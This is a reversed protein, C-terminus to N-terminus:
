NQRQLNGGIQKMAIVRPLGQLDDTVDLLKWGKQDILTIIPELELYGIECAILGEPELFPPSSDLLRRYFEMGDDGGYLAVEPEFDRVQRQIMEPNSRPVYPPNSAIISVSNELSLGALPELLNGELFEIRDAVSNILANQRAVALAAPSIDIAILRADALNRAIAVAICGSGTGADVITVTGTRESAARLVREVLFETEPRPILVDPTTIFDLGYFEQRGTIYQLPEGAIKRSLLEAFRENPASEVVQEPYAVIKTDSLGTALSLLIRATKRPHEEGASELLRVAERLADKITTAAM